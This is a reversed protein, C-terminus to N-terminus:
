KIRDSNMVRVEEIKRVYEGCKVLGDVNLAIGHKNIYMRVPCTSYRGCECKRKINKEQETM